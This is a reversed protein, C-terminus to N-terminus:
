VTSSTSPTSSAAVTFCTLFLAVGSYALCADFWGWGTHVLLAGLLWAGLM